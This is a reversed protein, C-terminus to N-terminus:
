QHTITFSGGSVTATDTDGDKWDITVTHTDGTDPDSYTGSLTVWDNEDVETDM